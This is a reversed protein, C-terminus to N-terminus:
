RLEEDPGKRLFEESLEAIRGTITASMKRHFAGLYRLRRLTEGKAVFRSRSEALRGIDELLRAQALLFGAYSESAGYRVRKTGQEGHRRALGFQELLRAAVSASSKAMGLTAAIEDLTVPGECLLLYAYLNATGPQLGWPSLLASLDEMFRRQEISLGSNSMNSM